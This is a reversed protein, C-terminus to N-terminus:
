NKCKLCHLRVDDHYLTLNLNKLTRLPFYNIVRSIQLINCIQLHHHYKNKNRIEKGHFNVIMVFIHIWVAKKGIAIANPAIYLACSPMSKRRHALVPPNYGVISVPPPELASVLTARQSVNNCVVIAEM